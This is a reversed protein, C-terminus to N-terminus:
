RSGDVQHLLELWKGADALAAMAESALGKLVLRKLNNPNVRQIFQELKLRKTYSM